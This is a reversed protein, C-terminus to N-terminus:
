AAKPKLEVKSWGPERRDFAEYADIASQMPEVRTLIKAPDIASSVVLGILKTYYRQHNCNGMKVTLNKNM